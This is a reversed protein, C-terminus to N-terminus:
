RFAEWIKTHLSGFFADNKVGRLAELQNWMSDTDPKMATNTFADLDLLASHPGSAIPPDLAQVIALTAQEKEFPLVIRTAYQELTQPLAPPIKPGATFVDDLDIRGDIYSLPIRNIYRVGLRVVASPTFVEGYVSWLLRVEAILAEWSEYPELRSVTLGDSKAQVVTKKDGSELRAGILSMSTDTRATPEKEIQIHSAIFRIAHHTPYKKANLQHFKSFLEEPVPLALAARIEIAAEAIPAKTLHPHSRM